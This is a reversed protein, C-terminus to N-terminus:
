IWRQPQQNIKIMVIFTCNGSNNCDNLFTLIIIQFINGSFFFRFTFFGGADQNAPQVTIDGTWKWLTKLIFNLNLLADTHSM